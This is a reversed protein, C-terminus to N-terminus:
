NSALEALYRAHLKLLDKNDYIKLRGINTITQELDDFKVDDGSLRAMDDCYKDLDTVSADVGHKTALAQIIQLATQTQDNWDLALLLDESSTGDLM